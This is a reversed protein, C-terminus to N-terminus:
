NTDKCCHVDSDITNAFVRIKIKRNQCMGMDCRCNEEPLVFPICKVHIDKCEKEHHAPITLFKTGLSHEKKYEDEESVAIALAVRKDPCVHKITTEIELLRGQSHLYVDGANVEIFDKCHDLWIEKPEPCNEGIVDGGCNVQVMPEPFDVVNGQTDEYLISENVKKLGSATGIHRIYFELVANESEKVGLASINWKITHSDMIIATGKDPALIGSITFDPQIIDELVINTAGPQTINMALDEFLKKLDEENPTLAVHTADPDSAWENLADADVGDSGLLGICYIEIGQAKANQAIPAPDLGITTKGDTFMIMVKENSSAANFLDIAKTFADAHNTRGNAHLSDIAQKLDATSTILQTEQTATDSFSVIGIHSGSGIQGSEGQTSEQIIDIFADAAIKLNELASVEMSKSEDLIRVIDVPHTIINPAANLSLTVKLTEDCSIEQKDITKNVSTIGM